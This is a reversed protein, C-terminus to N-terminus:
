ELISYDVNELVRLLVLQFNSVSLKLDLADILYQPHPPCDRTMCLVAHTCVAYVELLMAQKTQMKLKLFLQSALNQETASVDLKGGIRAQLQMCQVAKQDIDRPEKNFGGQLTQM